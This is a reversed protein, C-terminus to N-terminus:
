DFSKIQLSEPVIEKQLFILEDIKTLPIIVVRRNYSRGKFSDSGDSNSNIAVPKSEGNGVIKIRTENVNAGSLFDAVSRARQVSLVQNYSEPGLADTNGEILLGLEPYDLMLDVLQNLMQHYEGPISHVDFSFRIPELWMTDISEAVALLPVPIPVSQKEEGFDVPPVITIEDSSEDVSVNQKRTEEGPGVVLVNYIGAPLVVEYHGDPQPPTSYVQQGSTSDIINVQYQTYNTSDVGIIDGKVIFRPSNAFVMSNYRYIDYGWADPEELRSMLGSVTSELPYYFLDDDTTSIPSGMNIAQRWRKEDRKLSHFVDYGGMNLHGQSSFYLINDDSNIIPTLENFPTNVIPGLNIAPGWGLSDDRLISKYIDLGGYGGPRNSTFYLTKGDISISAHTENYPTNINENLPKMAEWGDATYKTSYIEGMRMPEYIYLFLQQGESDSGVLIHDGDSGIQPTINEPMGWKGEDLEVRMLADYFPLEEMYYLLSDHKVLVPNYNSNQNNIRSPLRETRPEGPFAGLLRANKCRNLQIDILTLMDPNSDRISDKLINFSSISKDLEGEIRYAIGLRMLAELPARTESFENVYQSSVNGAAMELYPISKKKRGRINLYCQGIKQYVNANIIEKKELLLYLPLAEIYEEASLYEEAEDYIDENSLWIQAHSM